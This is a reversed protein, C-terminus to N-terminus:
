VISELRYWAHTFAGNDDPSKWEHVSCNQMEFHEMDRLVLIKTGKNSLLEWGQSKGFCKKADSNRM